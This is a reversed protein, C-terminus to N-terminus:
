GSATSTVRGYADALSAIGVASAGGAVLATGAPRIFPVPLALGVLVVVAVGALAGVALWFTLFLVDLRHGKAVDWSAAMADFAGEGEVAIRFPLFALGTGVYVGAIALAVTILSGLVPIAGAVTTLLWFPVAVVAVVIVMQVISVVPDTPSGGDLGGERGAFFGAAFVVVATFLVAGLVGIGGGVVGPAVPLAWSGSAGDSAASTMSPLQAGIARILHTLVFAALVAVGRPSALARLGELITARVVFSM